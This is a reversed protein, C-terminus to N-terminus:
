HKTGIRPGQRANTYERSGRAYYPDSQRERYDRHLDEDLRQLMNSVSASLAPDATHPTAIFLAAPTQFGSAVFHATLNRRMPAVVHGQGGAMRNIPPELLKRSRKSQYTAARMTSGHERFEM